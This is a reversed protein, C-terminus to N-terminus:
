LGVGYGPAVSSPGLGVPRRVRDSLNSAHFPLHHEGDPSNGAAREPVYATLGASGLSIGLQPGLGGVRDRAETVGSARPRRTIDASLSCIPSGM